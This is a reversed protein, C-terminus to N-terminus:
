HIAFIGATYWNAALGLQSLTWGFLLRVDNAGTEGGRGKRAKKRLWEGEVEKKWGVLSHCSKNEDTATSSNSEAGAEGIRVNGGVVRSLSDETDNLDSSRPTNGSSKSETEANGGADEGNGVDTTSSEVWCDANSKKDGSVLPWKLGNGVDAGLNDTGDQCSGEDLSHDGVLDGRVQARVVNSFTNTNSIGENTFSHHSKNQQHNHEEGSNVLVGGDLAHSGKSNAQSDVTSV